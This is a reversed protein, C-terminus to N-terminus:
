SAAAKKFQCHYSGGSKAAKAAEADRHLCKPGNRNYACDACNAQVFKVKLDATGATGGTAADLAEENIRKEESM